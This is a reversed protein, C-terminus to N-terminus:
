GKKPRNFIDNVDIAGKQIDLNVAGSSGAGEAVSPAAARKAWNRGLFRLAAEEDAVFRVEGAYFKATGDLFTKIISLWM